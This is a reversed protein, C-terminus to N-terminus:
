TYCEYDWHRSLRQGNLYVYKLSIYVMNDLNVTLEEM